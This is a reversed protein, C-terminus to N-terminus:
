SFFWCSQPTSPLHPTSVHFPTNKYTNAIMVVFERLQQKVRPPIESDQFAAQAKDPDFEPMGLIQTMEDVVIGQRDHLLNQEANRVAVLAAKSPRPKNTRSNVVPQLHQLLMEVNWDILREVKESGAGEGDLEQKEHDSDSHGTGSFTSASQGKSRPVAWFTQVQGKGRLHVVDPREMLWHDKGQLRLEQATAPSVHIRGALGASEIRSAVNM